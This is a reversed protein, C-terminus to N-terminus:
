WSRRSASAAVLGGIVLGLGAGILAALGLSVLAPLDPRAARGAGGAHRDAGPQGRGLPRHRADPHVLTQGLVLMSLFATDNLVGLTSPATLFAPAYAGVAAVMAVILVALVAERNRLLWSM